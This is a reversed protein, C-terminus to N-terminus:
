KAFRFRRTYPDAFCVHAPRLFQASTFRVKTTALTSV